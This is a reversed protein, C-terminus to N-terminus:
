AEIGELFERLLLRDEEPGDHEVELGGHTRVHAFVRTILNQRGLSTALHPLHGVVLLRHRARSFAVNVLNPADRNHLEDLFWCPTGPAEVTDFIVLDKDRGQFRHVTFVEVGGRALLGPARRRLAERIRRVQGRYPTIVAVDETAAALVLDAVVEAHHPNSKSGTRTRESRCRAGGTDLLLIAPGRDARLTVAPADQLKGAYFISSVLESIQPHMRYQRVLMSRLPHQTQPTDAGATTFVHRGLWARCQPHDTQVIAPLQMFDGVAVVRRRAVCAAVLCQPLGAVSAEDIVVDDTRLSRLLASTYLRTLTTAVVRAEAVVAREADRLQQDLDAAGDMLEQRDSLEVEGLVELALRLRRSLAGGGGGGLPGGGLLEALRGCLEEIGAALEPRERRVTRDVVEDLGVGYQKLGEAHHGVRVVAGEPLDGQRIVQLLANDTAVNTHATVLVREQREVMEHVLHAVTRTKGTGPPGWIYSVDTGLVRGIAERQSRNLGPRSIVPPSAPAEGTGALLALGRRWSFDDPHDVMSQIRGALMTLLHSSDFSLSAEPVVQGLSHRLTCELRGLDRDHDFVEGSASEMSTAVQVQADVPIQQEVDCHFRYLYAGPEALLCEGDDVPVGALEGLAGLENRITALELEIAELMAGTVDELKARGRM